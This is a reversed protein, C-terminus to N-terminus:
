PQITHNKNLRVIREVLFLLVLVNYTFEEIKIALEGLRIKTNNPISCIKFNIM